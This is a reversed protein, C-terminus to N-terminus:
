NDQLKPFLIFTTLVATTTLSGSSGQEFSEWVGVLCAPWIRCLKFFSYKARAQRPFPAPACKLIWPWVWTKCLRRWCSTVWQWLHINKSYLQLLPLIHNTQKWVTWPTLTPSPHVPASVSSVLTAPTSAEQLQSLSEQLNVPNQEWSKIHRSIEVNILSIFLQRCPPLHPSHPTPPTEVLSNEPHKIFKYYKRGWKGGARREWGGALRKREATCVPTCMYLGCSSWGIDEELLDGGIGKLFHEGFM